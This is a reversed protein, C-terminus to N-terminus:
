ALIKVVIRRPHFVVRSSKAPSLAEAPLLSSLWVGGVVRGLTDKQGKTSLAFFDFLVSGTKEGRGWLGESGLGESGLAESKLGMWPM